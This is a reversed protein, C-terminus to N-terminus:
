KKRAKGAEINAAVDRVHKYRMLQLRIKQEREVEYLCARHLRQFFDKHKREINLNFAIAIAAGTAIAAWIFLIVALGEM